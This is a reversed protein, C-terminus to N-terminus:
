KVGKPKKFSYEVQYYDHLEFYHYRRWVSEHTVWYKVGDVKIIRPFYFYVKRWTDTEKVKRITM